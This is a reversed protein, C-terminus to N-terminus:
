EDEGYYACDEHAKEFEELYWQYLQGDSCEDRADCPGADDLARVYQAFTDPRHWCPRPGDPPALYAAEAFAFASM